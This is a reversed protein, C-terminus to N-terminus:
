CRRIGGSSFGSQDLRCITKSLRSQCRALLTTYPAPKTTSFRLTGIAQGRFTPPKPCVLGLALSSQWQYSSARHGQSLSAEQPPSTVCCPYLPSEQLGRLCLSTQRTSRRTPGAQRWSSAAVLSTPLTGQQARASASITHHHPSSSLICLRTLSLFPLAFALRVFRKRANAQNV